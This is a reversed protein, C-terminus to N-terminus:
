TLDPSEFRVCDYNRELSHTLLQQKLLAVAHQDKITVFISIIVSLMSTETEGWQIV